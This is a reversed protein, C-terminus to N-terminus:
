KFGNKSYIIINQSDYRERNNQSNDKFLLV